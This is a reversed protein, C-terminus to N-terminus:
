PGTNGEGVGLLIGTIVMATRSNEKYPLHCKRLSVEVPLIWEEEMQGKLGPSPAVKM